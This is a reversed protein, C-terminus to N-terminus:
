VHKKGREKEKATVALQLQKLIEYQQQSELRKIIEYALFRKCNALIMNINDKENTFILIHLHSPMIVFSEIENKKTILIKLWKYIEDYLNTIQFYICGIRVHSHASIFKCM